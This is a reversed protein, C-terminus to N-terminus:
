RVVAQAEGVYFPFVLNFRSNTGRISYQLSVTLMGDIDPDADVDIRETQIRPECAIIADSVARRVSAGLNADVEEFVYRQLSSGYGERMPREGQETAFLIQLSQRVDEEGAVTIVTNGGSAFQPPFAWGRGLFEMQEAM